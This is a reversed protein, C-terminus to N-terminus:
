LNFDKDFIKEGYDGSFKLAVNIPGKVNHYVCTGSSCTGLTITKSYSRENQEVKITGIVGQSTDEATLYSLTYEISSTKEPIGDISLIVEKKGSSSKLDVKVSADVTPVVQDQVLNKKPPVQTSRSNKSLVLFFTTAAVLIVALVILVINKKNAM